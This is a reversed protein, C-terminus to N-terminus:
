RVDGEEPTIMALLDRAERITLAHEAAWQAVCLRAKRVTVAPVYAATYRRHGRPSQHGSM